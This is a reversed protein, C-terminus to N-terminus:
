LSKWLGHSVTKELYTLSFFWETLGWSVNVQNITCTTQISQTLTSSATWPLLDWFAKSSATWVMAITCNSPLTSPSAWPKKELQLDMRFFCCVGHLSKAWVEQCEDFFLWFYRVLNFLKIVPPMLSVSFHLAAAAVSNAVTPDINIDYDEFYGEDKPMLSYAEMTDQLLLSWCYSGPTLLLWSTLNCWIAVDSLSLVYTWYSVQGLILPLFEKYTITQIQAILIRRAEQFLIEDVWHPNLQALAEALRNHERALITMLAALGMHENM